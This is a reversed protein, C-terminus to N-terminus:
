SAEEPSHVLKTLGQRTLAAGSLEAVVRGERFVLVRDSAQALEELDSSSLLVSMGTAVAARVAAYVDARAGIDVGQTPEDLLLIKPDRQLWRALIVKQQNGGSLSSLLATDGAAKISFRGIAAQARQRELRHLRRLRQWSDEASAISLNDRVSMDLFAADREREQPIFAIRRKMAEAPSDIRCQRGDLVIAGSDIPYTGFLMRLLESPGSGLLGALGLIEGERLSFGVNRLPGGSLDTVQLSVDSRAAPSDTGYIREIPRGVIYQVLDPETLGDASRTVVHRGDRLVTVSDAIDLIEDMRHTVYLVTHGTQALGRIAQLLVDVEHTPLSATPEDLVIVSTAGARIDQLARAVAVMTREAPRLSGALQQPMAKIQYQELLEKTRRRHYRWNIGPGLKAFGNGIAINELVSLGPWIGLDQHVVRLGAARARDVTMQEAAALSGCLSVTGGPEGGYVGALIKILTSKGSGNEGVLGHVTGKGVSFSLDILANTAGFRKSLHDIVIAPEAAGNADPQPSTM